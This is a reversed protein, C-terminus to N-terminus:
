AQWRTRRILLWSEARWRGVGKPRGTWIVQERSIVDDGMDRVLREGRYVLFVDIWHRLGWRM